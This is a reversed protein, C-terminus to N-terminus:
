LSRKADRIVSVTFLASAGGSPACPWFELSAGSGGKIERGGSRRRVGGGGWVSGRGSFKVLTVPPAHRGDALRRFLNSCLSNSLTAPIWFAPRRNARSAASIGGPRQPAPRRSRRRCAAAAVQFLGLAGGLRREASVASRRECGGGTLLRCRESM